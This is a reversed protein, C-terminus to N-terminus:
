PNESDTSTGESPTSNETGESSSDTETEEVIKYYTNYEKEDCCKYFYVVIYPPMNEHSQGGGTKTTIKNSRKRGKTLIYASEQGSGNSFNKLQHSHPPIEKETLKHKYEGGIDGLKFSMINTGDSVDNGAGVLMRGQGFPVWYPGTNENSLTNGKEEGEKERSIATILIDGKVYRSYYENTAEQINHILTGYSENMCKDIYRKLSNVSTALSDGGEIGVIDDGANELTATDPWTTNIRGTIANDILTELAESAESIEMDAPSTYGIVNNEDLEELGKVQSTEVESIYKELGRVVGVLSNVTNLLAEVKTEILNVKDETIIDGTNWNTKALIIM